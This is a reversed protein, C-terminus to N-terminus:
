QRSWLLRVFFLLLLKRDVCNLRVTSVFRCGFNMERVSASKYNRHNLAVALTPTCAALLRARRRAPNHGSSAPWDLPVLSDVRLNDRRCSGCRRRRRRRRLRRRSARQALAAGRLRARLASIRSVRHRSECNCGRCGRYTM